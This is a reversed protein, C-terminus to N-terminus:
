NISNIFDCKLTSSLMQTAFVKQWTGSFSFCPIWVLTPFVPQWKKAVCELEKKLVKPPFNEWGKNKLEHINGSFGLGEVESENVSLEDCLQQSIAM